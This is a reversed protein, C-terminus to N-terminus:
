HPQQNNPPGIAVLFGVVLLILAVQPCYIALLIFLAILFLNPNEKAFKIVSCLAAFEPITM